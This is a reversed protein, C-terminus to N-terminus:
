LLSEIVDCVNDSAKGIKPLKAICREMAIVRKSRNVIENLINNLENLDFAPIAIGMDYYPALTSFKSLMIQIVPKGILAAEMGVTSSAVIVIDVAHLVTAMNIKSSLIEIDSDDEIKLIAESPHPRYLIKYSPNKLSISTLQKLIKERLGKEPLEQSAWLILVKSNWKPIKFLKSDELLQENCLQDFAPNGTLAISEPRRGKAVLHDRVYESMVAIKTAFTNDLVAPFEWDTGLLDVMCLSPIDFTKAVRISAEESRPSNTAIVIDPKVKALLRNMPELPLFARRGIRRVESSAKELGLRTILDFYSLGLYAVSEEYSMSSSPNHHTLALEKGLKLAESDSAEVLDLYRLSPISNEKLKEHAGTLGMVTIEWGGRAKLEKVVPIVMNVHGGGYTVFLAKKMISGSPFVAM